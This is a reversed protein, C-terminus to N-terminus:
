PIQDEMVRHLLGKQMGHPRTPQSKLLSNVGMFTMENM